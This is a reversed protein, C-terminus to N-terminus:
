VDQLTCMVNIHMNDRTKQSKIAAPRPIESMTRMVVRRKMLHLLTYKLRYIMMKIHHM